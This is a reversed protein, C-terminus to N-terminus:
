ELKMVVENEASKDLDASLAAITAAFAAVIQRDSEARDTSDSDYSLCVVFAIPAGIPLIM